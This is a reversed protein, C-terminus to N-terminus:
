GSAVYEGDDAWDGGEAEAADWWDQEVWPLDHEAWSIFFVFFVVGLFAWTYTPHYLTQNTMSQVFMAVMISAATHVVLRQSDTPLMARSKWSRWMAFAARIAPIGLLILLPFGGVYLMDIWANHAHNNIAADMLGDRGSTGFLGLPRSLAINIYDAWLGIRGSTHTETLRAGAGEEIGSLVSLVGAAFIGGVILLGPRKVMPILMLVCIIALSLFSMRSGTLFAFGIDLGLLGLCTFRVLPRPSSLILYLLMGGAIAFTIGILNPASGWPGFRHLGAVFAGRGEIALGSGAICIAITTGTALATMLKALDDLNRIVSVTLIAAISLALFQGKLLIMEMRNSTGMVCVVMYISAAVYLWAVPPIPRREVPRMWAAAAVMVFMLGSSLKTAAQVPGLGLCKSLFLWPPMLAIMVWLRQSSPILMWVFGAAVVALLLVPLPVIQLYIEIKDM